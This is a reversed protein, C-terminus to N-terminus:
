LLDGLVEGRHAGGLEAVHRADLGLEVLAVGLDDAEPGLVSLGREALEVSGGEDADVSGRQDFRRLPAGLHGPLDREACEPRQDLCPEAVRPEQPALRKRSTGPDGPVVIM